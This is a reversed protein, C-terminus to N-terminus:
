LFNYDMIVLVESIFWYVAIFDVKQILHTQFVKAYQNQFNKM